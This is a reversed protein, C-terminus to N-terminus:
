EQCRVMGIKRIELRFAGEFQFDVRLQLNENMKHYFLIEQDKQTKKHTNEFCSSRGDQM